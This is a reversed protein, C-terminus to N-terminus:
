LAWLKLIGFIGDEGSNIGSGLGVTTTSGEAYYQVQLTSQSDLVFSDAMQTDGQNFSGGGFITSSMLTDGNDANRLRHQGYSQSNNLTFLGEGYYSGAALVIDGSQLTAIGGRNIRLRTMNRNRWSGGTTSGNDTNADRHEQALVDPGALRESAGYRVIDSVVSNDDLIYFGVVNIANADLSLDPNGSPFNWQPDFTITKGGVNDNILILRGLLGPAVGSPLNVYMNSTINVTQVFHSSSYDPTITAAFPLDTAPWLQPTKVLTDLGALDSDIQDVQTQSAAGLNIRAQDADTAGTGGQAITVPVSVGPKLDDYSEDITDYVIRLKYDGLDPDMFIPGAMGAGDTLVPQTLPITLAADSFINRANTTGADYVYIEAGPVPDGNVDLITVYPLDIVIGTM